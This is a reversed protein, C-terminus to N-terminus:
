WWLWSEAVAVAAGEAVVSVRSGVLLGPRIRRLAMGLLGALAAGARALKAAEEALEALLKSVPGALPDPEIEAAAAASTKAM